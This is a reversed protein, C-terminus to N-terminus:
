KMSRIAKACNNAALQDSHYVSVPYETECIGACREKMEDEIRKRFAELQTPYFLVATPFVGKPEIRPEIAGCEKALQITDTM